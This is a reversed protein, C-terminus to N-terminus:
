LSYNYTVNYISIPKNVISSSKTYFSARVYLYFM